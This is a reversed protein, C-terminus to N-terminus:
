GAALGGMDRHEGTEPALAFGHIRPSRAVSPQNVSPDARRDVIVRVQRDNQSCDLRARRYERGPL